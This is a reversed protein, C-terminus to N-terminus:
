DNLLTSPQVEYDSQWGMNLHLKRHISMPAVNIRLKLCASEVENLWRTALCWGGAPAKVKLIVRSQLCGAHVSHTHLKLRLKVPIVKLGTTIV